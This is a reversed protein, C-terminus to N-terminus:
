VLCRNWRPDCKPSPGTRIREVEDIPDRYRDRTFDQAHPPHEGYCRAKDAIRRIGWVRTEEGHLLQPLMTSDAANATTAVVSHIPKNQSDVGVHAKM